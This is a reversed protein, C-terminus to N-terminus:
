SYRAHPHSRARPSGLIRHGIARFCTRRPGRAPRSIHPQVRQGSQLPAILMMRGGNGVAQYRGNARADRAGVRLGHEFALPRHKSPFSPRHEWEHDAGRQDHHVHYKQRGKLKADWHGRQDGANDPDSEHEDEEPKRGLRETQVFPTSPSRLAAANISGRRSAPNTASKLRFIGPECPSMSAMTMPGVPMKVISVFFQFPLISTRFSRRNTPSEISGPHDSLDIAFRESDLYSQSVLQGCTPYSHRRDQARDTPGPKTASGGTSDMHKVCLMKRPRDHLSGSHEVVFLHLQKAAQGVLTKPEREGPLRLWSLQKQVPSITM